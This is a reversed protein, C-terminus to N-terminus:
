LQRLLALLDAPSDVVIDAAEVLESPAEDSSVAVRVGLELRDLARFADIDTTDDGAYLARTLAAEELIQTVATGKDAEVPPRIELVKRGFRPVLGATRAREAVGELYELAADEDEAERYHFSVTLGKDEVPWDVGAAFRHIEERWRDAEPALELGHSGVYRIGGVGVLRRADEGTRGSVCAVLAYRGVLRELERRTEVPVAAEDPRQVIPALTGDVDLLIAARGPAEALRTLASVARVIRGHRENEDAQDGPEEARQEPDTATDDDHRQEDQQDPEVFPRRHSGRKCRDPQDGGDPRDRIRGATIDM